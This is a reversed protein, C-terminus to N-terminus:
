VIGECRPSNCLHGPYFLDPARAVFCRKLPCGEEFLVCGRWRRACSPHDATAAGKPKVFMTDNRFSKCDYFM